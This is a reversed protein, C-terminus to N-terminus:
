KTKIPRITLGLLKPTTKDTVARYDNFTMYYAKNTTAFSNAWYGGCENFLEDLTNGSYTQEKYGAAPMFMKHDPNKKSTFLRGNVGSDKYNKVFEHTTHYLLERYDEVTPIGFENGLTKKVIDDKSDLIFESPKFEGDNDESNYKEYDPKHNKDYNDLLGWCYYNGTDTEDEGGLNCEAWLAGSPLDLDILRNESIKVESINSKNLKIVELLKKMITMKIKNQNASYLM